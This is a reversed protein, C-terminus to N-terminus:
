LHARCLADFRKRVSDYIVQNARQTQEVSDLAGRERLWERYNIGDGKRDHRLILERGFIAAYLRCSLNFEETVGVYTLRDTPIGGLYQDYIGAFRNGFQVPDDTGETYFYHSMVRDIPDRFVAGFQGAIWRYKGLSFHGFVVKARPQRVRRVIADYKVQIASRPVRDMVLYDTIMEGPYARQLAKLLSTGATKPIHALALM